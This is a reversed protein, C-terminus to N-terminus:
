LQCQIHTRAWQEICRALCVSNGDWVTIGRNRQVCSNDEPDINHCLKKAEKTMQKVDHLINRVKSPLALLEQDLRQNGLNFLERDKSTKAEMLKDLEKKQADTVVDSYKKHYNTKQSFFLLDSARLGLKPALTVISEIVRHSMVFHDFHKSIEEVNNSDLGGRWGTIYAIQGNRELKKAFDWPDKADLSFESLNHTIGHLYMSWSRAVPERLSTVRFPRDTGLIDAVTTRNYVIHSVIADLHKVSARELANDYHEPTELTWQDRKFDPYGVVMGERTTYRQLIHAITSSSSKPTKIYLLKKRLPSLRNFENTYPWDSYKAWKCSPASIPTDIKAPPAEAKLANSSKTVSESETPTTPSHVTVSPPLKTAENSDSSHQKASTSSDLEAIQDALPRSVSYRHSRPPASDLTSQINISFRHGSYSYLLPFLTLVAILLVLVRPLFALRTVFRLTRWSSDRRKFM